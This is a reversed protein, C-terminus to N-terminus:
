ATTTISALCRAARSASFATVRMVGQSVIPRRGKSAAGGFLGDVTATLQSSGGRSPFPLGGNSRRTTTARKRCSAETPTGKPALACLAGSSGPLIAGGRGM